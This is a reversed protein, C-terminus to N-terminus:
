NGKSTKKTGLFYGSEENGMSIMLRLRLKYLCTYRKKGKHQDDADADAGAELLCTRRKKGRHQDDADM